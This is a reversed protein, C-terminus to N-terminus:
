GASAQFLRTAKEFHIIPEGAVTVVRDGVKIGAKEAPLGPEVREVEAPVKPVIGAYGVQYSTVAEIQLARSLREGGREFEVTVTQGPSFAVHMNLDNWNRVERDGFRVIRDGPEIGVKAAPSTPEVAGVVAPRTLFAAEPI